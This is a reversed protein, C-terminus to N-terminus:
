VKPPEGFLLREIETVQQETTLATNESVAKIQPALRRCADAADWQFKERDLRATEETQDTKVVKLALKADDELDALAYLRKITADRLKERSIGPYENAIAEEDQEAIRDLHDWRAQRFQWQCFDSYAADSGLQIGLRELIRARATPCDCEPPATSGDPQRKGYGLEYAWQRDAASRLKMLRLPPVTGDPSVSPKRPM